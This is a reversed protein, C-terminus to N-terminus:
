IKKCIGNKLDGNADDNGPPGPPSPAFGESCHDVELVWEDSVLRFQCTGPNVVVVPPDVPSPDGPGVSM